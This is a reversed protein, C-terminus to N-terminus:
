EFILELTTASLVGWRDYVYISDLFQSYMGEALVNIAFVEAPQWRLGAGLTASFMPKGSRIRPMLLASADARTSAASAM